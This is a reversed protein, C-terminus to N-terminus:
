ERGCVVAKYMVNNYALEWEGLFQDKIPSHVVEKCDCILVAYSYLYGVRSDVNLRVAMSMHNDFIINKELVILEGKESDKYVEKLQDSNMSYVANLVIQPM